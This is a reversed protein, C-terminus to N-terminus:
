EDEDEYEDTPYNCDIFYSESVLSILGLLCDDNALLLQEKNESNLKKILKRTEDLQKVAKEILEDKLRKVAKEIEEDKTM